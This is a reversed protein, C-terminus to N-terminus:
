DSPDRVTPIYRREAPGWSIKRPSAIFQMGVSDERRHVLECKVTFDDGAIELMFIKPIQAANPSQFRAGGESLDVVIGTIKKGDELVLVAPKFVSRRGFKRKEIYPNVM